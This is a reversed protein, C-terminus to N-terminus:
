EFSIGQKLIHIWNRKGYLFRVIYIRKASHDITYFALYNRILLFRIGWDKLVVDEVIPHIEPDESLVGIRESILNLLDDAAKPNKLIFEIYDLADAIDQEAIKAIYIQYTM